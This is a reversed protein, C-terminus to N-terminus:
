YRDEQVIRQWIREIAKKLEPTAKSWQYQLYPQCSKGMILLDQEAMKRVLPNADTLLTSQCIPRMGAKLTSAEEITLLKGHRSFSIEASIAGTNGGEPAPVVTGSVTIGYQNEDVKSISPESFSYMGDQHLEESLKLWAVLADGAQEKSTAEVESKISRALDETTTVHKFSGDRSFEFINNYALPDPLAFGIPWQPFRLVYFLNNPFVKRVMKDDILILRSYLLYPPSPRGKGALKNVFEAIKLRPNGGFGGKKLAEKEAEDPEGPKLKNEVTERHHSPFQPHVVRAPEATGVGSSASGSPEITGGTASGSTSAGSGGTSPGATESDGAGSSNTGSGTTGADGAGSGGTGSGSTGPGSEQKTPSGPSKQKKIHRTEAPQTMLSSLLLLTVTLTKYKM